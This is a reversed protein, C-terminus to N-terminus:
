RRIHLPGDWQEEPRTLPTSRKGIWGSLFAAVNSGLDPVHYGGEQVVLTPKNLARVRRGIKFFGSTTVLFTGVPDHIYTDFGASVVLWRPDFSTLDQLLTELASIYHEQSTGPPLPMNSNTGKGAGSGTEDAYGAYFPYDTDPDIHLSGYWVNPDTYYIAQTGNGHHYDIDLIGVREDDKRLITVAIAANNLYCYGGFFDPGAHHGPPRCLAYVFREGSRLYMAGTMACRASAVATEWTNEDIPVGMNTCYFGKQGEFCSPRRRQGPPAFFTPFVPTSDGDETRHRANATALYEIMGADHVVYIPDSGTAAPQIVKGLKSERIALLISDV